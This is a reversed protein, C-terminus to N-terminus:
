EHQQGHKCEQVLERDLILFAEVQKARLTELDRFGLRRRVLYEEVLTQSEGTIYSRPCTQLVVTGRAWVIPAKSDPELAVWSCHRKSELGAKRCVDCM